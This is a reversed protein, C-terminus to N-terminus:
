FDIEVWIPIHDSIRRSAKMDLFDLHFYVLGCDLLQITTSNLFIHDYASALCDKLKCKTKLTTKEGELVSLYNMKKLPNFVTHTSPVNFDGLFVLDENPYLTPFQKFYKIETEPQKNKPVAHFSVLTFTKQKYKLRILFPEREIQNIYNNELWAKGIIQLKSSKWLFAYRESSYPSSQTPDSIVYDWKAGKRNLEDALRAVSQAGGSGSVVEQLAIVDFDKLLNAMYAISEDTKSKGMNQINWSTIKVQATSISVWICFLFILYSRLSLNFITKM